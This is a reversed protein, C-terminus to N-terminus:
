RQFHWVSRLAQGAERIHELWRIDSFYSILMKQRPSLQSAFEGNPGNIAIRQQVPTTLDAPKPPYSAGANVCAALFPLGKALTFLTNM